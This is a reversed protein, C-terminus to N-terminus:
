GIYRNSKRTNCGRHALQVNDWAHLGGLSIPKIHDISPYMDGCIVARDTEIYDSWDVFLGCIQCQNHDRDAVSKLTIGKDITIEKYRHKGRDTNKRRCRDSCYKTTPYYATYKKGCVECEHEAEYELWYAINAQKIAEKRARIKAWEQQKAEYEKRRREKEPAEQAEKALKQELRLKNREEVTLADPHSRLYKQRDYEKRRQKQEETYERKRQEGNKYKASCELSCTIKHVQWTYFEKGCIPCQKVLELSSCKGAKVLTARNLCTESCYKRHQTGVTFLKGCLACERDM